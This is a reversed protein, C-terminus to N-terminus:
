IRVSDDHNQITFKDNSGSDSFASDCDDTTARLKSIFSAPRPNPNSIHGMHPTDNGIDDGLGSSCASSDSSLQPQVDINTATTTCHNITLSLSALAAELQHELTLLEHTCDNTYFSSKESSYQSM